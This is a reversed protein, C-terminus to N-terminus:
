QPSDIMSIRGGGFSGDEGETTSIVVMVDEPDIGPAEDLLAVLRRYFAQKTMRDRPKGGTIHFLVFDDSRPGGLYRDDYILESPEHKHIVQFRDSFAGGAGLSYARGVSNM